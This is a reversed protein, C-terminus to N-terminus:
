ANATEQQVRSQARRRLDDRMADIEEQEAREVKQAECIKTLLETLSSWHRQNNMRQDIGKNHYNIFVEQELGNQRVVVDVIRNIYRGSHTISNLLKIEENTINGDQYLPFGNQFYARTMKLRKNEPRALYEGISVQRRPANQTIADVVRQVVDTPSQTAKLAATVASSIISQLMDATLVLAGSPAAPANAPVPQPVAQADEIVLPEGGVSAVLGPATPTEYADSIEPVYTEDVAPPYSPRSPPLSIKPDHNSM